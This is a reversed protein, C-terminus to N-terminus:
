GMAMEFDIFRELHCVEGDAFHVEAICLFAGYASLRLEFGNEPDGVIFPSGPWMEGVAYRVYEIGKTISPERKSKKEVLYISIDYEQNPTDSARYRHVLMWGGSQEYRRTRKAHLSTCTGAPSSLQQLHASRKERDAASLSDHGLHWVGDPEFRAGYLTDGRLFKRRVVVCPPRLPDRSKRVGILQYTNPVSSPLSGEKLSLSGSSVIVPESWAGSEPAEYPIMNHVWAM